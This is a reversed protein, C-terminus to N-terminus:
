RPFLHVKRIIFLSYNKVIFECIVLCTVEAKQKISKEQAGSIISSLKTDVLWLKPELQIKHLGMTEFFVETGRLIDVTKSTGFEPEVLLIKKTYEL